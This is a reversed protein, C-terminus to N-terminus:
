AGAECRPLGPWRALAADGPCMGGGAGSVLPLTVAARGNCAACNIRSCGLGILSGVAADGHLVGLQAHSWIVPTAVRSDFLQPM